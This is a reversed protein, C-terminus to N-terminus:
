EYDRIVVGVPFAPLKDETWGFHKVTLKKGVVAQRDVARREALTGPPNCDFEKGEDTKCILVPIDAYKGRGFASGVVEFEREDFRKFKQLDPSRRGPQYKADRNRAIGGEYGDQVWEDHLKWAEEISTVVTHSHYYIPHTCGCLLNYCELTRAGNSSESSPLDYVHYGVEEYGDKAKTKQRVFSAIKQLTWGHVYLEGDLITGPPLGLAELAAIVHPVPVVIPERKRTWLTVKGDPGVVAICRVGNLKKQLIFPVNLKHAADEHPKALMPAIGGEQDTEGAEARSRDEVYGAREIKKTWRAKTEKEAQEKTTTANAKGLNKGETVTDRTVQMKGGVQGYETVIDYDPDADDATVISSCETWITWQETAGHSTRKYLTPLKM